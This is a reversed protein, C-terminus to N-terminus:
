LPALLPEPLYRESILCLSVARPVRVGGHTLAPLARPSPAACSVRHPPAFGPEASQLRRRPPGEAFSLSASAARRWGARASGARVQRTLRLDAPFPLPHAAPGGVSPSQREESGPSQPFPRSHGPVPASPPVGFLLSAPGMLLTAGCFM